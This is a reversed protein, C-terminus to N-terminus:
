NLPAFAEWAPVFVTEYLWAAESIPASLELLFASGDAQEAIALDFHVREDEFRYLKWTLGNYEEVRSESGPEYLSYANYLPHYDLFDELEDATYFGLTLEPEQPMPSRYFAGQDDPFWGAPVLTEFDAENDQFPKLAVPAGEVVFYTTLSAICASDPAAQPQSLFQTMLDLGCESGTSVGHGLGPLEYFYSNPLTEAAIAGWAPPTIPDYQGALVLTPIPSSVPQNEIPNITNSNWQPCMALMVKGLHYSSDFFQEIAEYEQALLHMDEPTSFPVEEACQVSYFMGLNGVGGQFNYLQMQAWWDYDGDRAEFIMRPLNPIMMESYFNSFMIGLMAESSLLVEIPDGHWSNEAHLTLPAAGVQEVLKFFVTDLSPYAENCLPDAACAEFLATLSRLLNAPAENYLSVQPPYTSDLVASRVGEPYDRMITLALRTGYSIGYLNWDKIGLAVRLDNFDAASAASNYAALNVGENLLRRRCELIKDAEAAVVESPLFYQAIGEMSYDDLEWCRLQPQSYGTGRQDMIIFDREALHPKVLIDFAYNIDVLASGGPGGELYVLPDPQPNPNDSHFYAVHLHIYPSEPNSRDEPVILYGCEVSADGELFFQCDAEQYRAPRQAPTPPAEPPLPYAALAQVGGWLVAIIVLIRLWVRM